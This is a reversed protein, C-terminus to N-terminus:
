SRVFHPIHGVLDSRGVLAATVLVLGVGGAYFPLPPASKGRRALLYTLGTLVAALGALMALVTGVLLGLSM